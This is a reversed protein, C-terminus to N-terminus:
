NFFKFILSIIIFYDESGGFTFFDNVTKGSQKKGQNNAFWQSWDYDNNDGGRNKFNSYSSGLTDYKKRKEADSLVEYAESIDKFKSESESNGQNKDPHYKTALKRFQRKIDDQSANKEVELIKYYDKFNM